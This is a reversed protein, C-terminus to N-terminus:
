NGDVIWNMKVKMGLNGSGDLLVLKGDLSFSFDFELELGLKGKDVGLSKADSSIDNAVTKIFERMNNYAPKLAVNMITDGLSTPVTQRGTQRSGEEFDITKIIVETNGIKDKIYSM